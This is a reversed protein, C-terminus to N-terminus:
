CMVTAPRIPRLFIQGHQALLRARADANASPRGDKGQVNGCAPIRSLLGPPHLSNSVKMKWRFRVTAKLFQHVAVVFTHKAM